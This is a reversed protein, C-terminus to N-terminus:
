FRYTLVASFSRGLNPYLDGRDRGQFIAFGSSGRQPPIEDFIDNVNVRLNAHRTLDYAVSLDSFYKAGTTGHDFLYSPAPNQVLTSTLINSSGLYQTRWTVEWKRWTYTLAGLMQWKPNPLFGEEKSETSPDGANQYIRLKKLYTGSVNFSVAGPLWLALRQLPLAYDLSFDVGETSLKGVNQQISTVSLLQFSVARKIAQCFPNSAPAIATDTCNTLITGSDTPQIAQTLDISYYDITARLGKVFTPAFTLGGTWTNATEPRLNPNGGTVVAKSGTTQVFGALVGLAKCNAARTANQGINEASCPDNLNFFATNQPSFLEDADPARVAHSRMLRFRLSKWPSWTGGLNWTDTTGSTDYDSVRYAGQATLEYVLPLDKLIPVRLEGFAEGVSVAGASPQEINLQVRGEVTLPDPDARTHNRRAEVGLSVGVPGAPLNFADGSINAGVMALDNKWRDVPSVRSYAIGAPTSSPNFVNLPQCGRARAAPDACAPQGNLLIVDISELFRDQQRGNLYQTRLQTLGYGAFAEYKFRGIDGRLGATYQQMTRDSDGGRPGFEDYVKEYPFIPTIPALIARLDAPVYPNTIKIAEPGFEFDATPQWRSEVHTDTFRAELFVQVHATLDYSFNAALGARETPLSLNDYKQFTGGDGGVQIGFLDQGLAGYDYPRVGGGGPLVTFALPAGFPVLNIVGASTSGVYGIPRTTVVLPVNPGPTKGGIYIAPNDLTGLLNSAYKRQSARVGNVNDYFGSVMVQGRGEAFGEGATLTLGESAADGRATVGGRARLEVGDFRNKLIINVVGSVADAGYVASSGGTLIEVHDVLPAPITNLDVANTGIDGPVQRRGNVLVLTRNYGLRRLDILNLGAVGFFNQTNRDSVGPGVPGTERLINGINDIGSQQIAQNTVTTVPAPTTDATTRLRSGTVVIEDAAGSSDPKATQAHTAVAFSTAIVLSATALLWRKCM